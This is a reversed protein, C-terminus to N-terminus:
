KRILQDTMKQNMYSLKVWEPTRCTFAITAEALMGYFPSNADNENGLRLNCSNTANSVKTIDGSINGTRDIGDLYIRCNNNGSRDIVVFIYHWDTTDSIALNGAMSFSGDDGWNTGGSAINFHPFQNYDISLLYGYESSPLDGNTKAVLAQPKALSSRKIWVGISLNNLEANLINGM